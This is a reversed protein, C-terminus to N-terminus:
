LVYKQYGRDILYCRDPEVSKELVVREDADGKRKSGTMDIHNPLRVFSQRCRTM